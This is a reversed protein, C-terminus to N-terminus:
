VFQFLVWPACVEALYSIELSLGLDVKDTHKYLPTGSDKRKIKYKM